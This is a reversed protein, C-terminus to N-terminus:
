EEDAQRIKLVRRCALRRIPAPVGRLASNVAELLRVEVEASNEIDIDICELMATEVSTLFAATCTGTNGHLIRNLSPVSIGLRAAAQQQTYGYEKMHSAFQRAIRSVRM